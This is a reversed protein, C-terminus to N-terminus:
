ASPGKRQYTAAVYGRMLDMLERQEDATLSYFLALFEFASVVEAFFRAKQANPGTPEPFTM